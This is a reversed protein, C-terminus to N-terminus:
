IGIPKLGIMLCNSVELILGRSIAYLELTQLAWKRKRRTSNFLAYAIKRWIRYEKAPIKLSLKFFKVDLEDMAVVFSPGGEVKIKQWSLYVEIPCPKEM